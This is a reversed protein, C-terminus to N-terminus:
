WCRWHSPRMDWFIILGAVKRWLKWYLLNRKGRKTLVDNNSIKGSVACSVPVFVATLKRRYIM